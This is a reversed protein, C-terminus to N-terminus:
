RNFCNFCSLVYIITNNGDAQVDDDKLADVKNGSLADTAVKVKNNSLNGEDGVGNGTEMKPYIQPFTMVKEKNEVPAPPSTFPKSEESPPIIIKNQSLTRELKKKLESRDM